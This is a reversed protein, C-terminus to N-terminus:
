SRQTNRAIKRACWLDRLGSVSAALTGCDTIDVTAPSEPDDQPSPYTLVLLGAGNHLFMCAFWSMM